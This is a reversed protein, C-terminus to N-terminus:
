PSSHQTFRANERRDTLTQIAPATRTRPSNVPRSTERGQQIGMCVPAQDSPTEDNAQNFPLCNTSCLREGRFEPLVLASCLYIADYSVGIPTQDLLQQENIEDALFKHMIDNTTPIVIAWAIPGNKTRREGMTAPHIRLLTKQVKEDVSIQSPDHRTEFFEEALQIMRIFNDNPM